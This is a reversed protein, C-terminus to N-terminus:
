LISFIPQIEKLDTQYTLTIFYLQYSKVNCKNQNQAHSTKHYTEIFTQNSSKSLLHPSFVLTWNTCTQKESLVHAELNFSFM